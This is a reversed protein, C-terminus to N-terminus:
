LERIFLSRPQGIDERTMTFIPHGTWQRPPETGFYQASLFALACQAEDFSAYQNQEDQAADGRIVVAYRPTGRPLAPPPEDLSMDARATLLELAPEVSSDLVAFVRRIRQEDVNWAALALDRLTVPQSAARQALVGLFHPWLTDDPPDGLSVFAESLAREDPPSITTGFFPPRLAAFFLLAASPAVDWRQSWEFGRIMAAIAKKGFGQASHSASVREEQRSRRMRVPIVHQKFCLCLNPAYFREEERLRPSRPPGAVLDRGPVRDRQQDPASRM